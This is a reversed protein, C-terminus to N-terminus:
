QVPVLAAPPLAGMSVLVKRAVLHRKPGDSSQPLDINVAFFWRRAKYQTWGVLWGHDQSGPVGASWGTKGHLTYDVGDEITAIRRVTEQHRAAFPLTGSALKRLFTVQQEASIRLPAGLWFQDISGGRERNGYDAADLWHQMREAGARRAVEQNVWVISYRMASALSHDRNRIPQGYDKGDWRLVEYEDAVAGTELAVLANFLKFTSAPSLGKRAREADLVSYRDAQEDYVLMTGTVGMDKFIGPWEAPEHWPDAAQALPAMLLLTTCFFHRIM